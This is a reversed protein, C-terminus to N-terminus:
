SAATQVLTQAAPAASFLRAMLDPMPGQRCLDVAARVHDINAGHELEVLDTLVVAEAWRYSDPLSRCRDVAGGLLSQAARADGRDVALGALGRLSLSEWCPDAIDCGVAYSEEFRRRAGDPDGLRRRAEGSWIMPWSVLSMAGAARAGDIGAEAAELGEAARDTLVLLRGLTAQAYALLPAQSPEAASASVAARLQAEAAPYDCRDSRCLAQYVAARQFRGEDGAAQAATQSRGLAAEAAGYRAELLAIYGVEREADAITANDHLVGALQLARNLLGTAEADRGRVSHTLISALVTLARAELATDGSSAAEGAARRATELGGEYDGAEFRREAMELRQRAAIDLSLLPRDGAPRARDLPRRLSAPAAVGLESWYRRDVQELYAKAAASDGRQVQVDIVLEHLADDYPSLGVARQLMRLSADPDDHALVAAAWRLADVSASSVRSRQLLLWMELAPADDFTFGELLEGSVLSEVEVAVGPGSLLHVVDVHVQPDLRLQLGDEDVVEGLGDLGRRLQLLSWRLAALPDDAEPALLAALERRSTSTPELALYALLGWPKRGSLDRPQGDVVLRPSGLLRM